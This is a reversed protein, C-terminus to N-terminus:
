KTATGLSVQGPAAAPITPAFAAFTANVKTKVATGRALALYRMTSEMDSHGLWTRVTQIDVGNQLHMTAFTARFKHLFWHHCM